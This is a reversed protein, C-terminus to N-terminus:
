VLAIEYHLPGERLAEPAVGARSAAVYANVDTPQALLGDMAPSLPDRLDLGVNMFSYRRHRLENHASVVLARLVEPREGPVCVHAVTVCRLPYGAGPLREAGVVPALLNFVSRAAKMRTSYGVVHLQKFTRQDWVALYGLLEGSTSRALRYDSIDLGPAERIWDAMSRATMAPALQRSPAVTRWLDAMAGLDSWKAHDISITTHSRVHRKWLISLSHTRITGLLKLRPVGRPGPLRREMARNGALVTILVPATPVLDACAEEVRLSLADAIRTDRHAPHVKLDGAYGTRMERGNVFSRRESFAACGVITHNREAVFVKWRDGEFRNLAFFDPARGMRLSVAGVMPCAAALAVLGQNDAPQAERVIFDGDYHRILDHNDASEEGPLKPDSVPVANPM